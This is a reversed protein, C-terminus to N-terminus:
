TRAYYTSVYHFQRCLEYRCCIVYMPTGTETLRKQRLEVMKLHLNKKRRTDLPKILVPLEPFNDGVDVNLITGWNFGDTYVTTRADYRQRCVFVVPM